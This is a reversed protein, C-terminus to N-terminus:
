YWEQKSRGLLDKYRILFIPGGDITLIQRGKKLRDHGSSLVWGEYISRRPNFIVTFKSCFLSSKYNFLLDAIWLEGKSRNQDCIGLCHFGSEVSDGEFFILSFTAKKAVERVPDYIHTLDLIRIM